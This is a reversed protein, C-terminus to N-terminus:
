VKENIQTYIATTVKTNFDRAAHQSFMPLAFILAPIFAALYVGKWDLEKESVQKPLASLLVKLVAWCGVIVVFAAGVQDATDAPVKTHATDPILSLVWNIVAAASQGIQHGIFLVLWRIGAGVPTGALLLQGAALMLVAGIRLHANGRKLFGIEAWDLFIVIAVLIIGIEISRAM